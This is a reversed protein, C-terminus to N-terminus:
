QIFLTQEATTFPIAPHYRAYKPRDKVISFPVISGDNLKVAPAKYIGSIDQDLDLSPYKAELSDSISLRRNEETKRSDRRGDQERQDAEDIRGSERGSSREWLERKLEQYSQFAEATYERVLEEEYLDAYFDSARAWSKEREYIGSRVIDIDTENYFNIKVVKNIKYNDISGKAYVLVNDVGFSTDKGDNVAVIIEGNKTRNARIQGSKIKAYKSRFDANERATLVDNVRAWGFDNYQKETYNDILDLSYRINTPYNM